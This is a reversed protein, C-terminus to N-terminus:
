YRPSSTVVAPASEVAMLRLPIRLVNGVVIRNPRTLGNVRAQKAAEDRYISYYHSPGRPDFGEIYFVTRRFGSQEPTETPM